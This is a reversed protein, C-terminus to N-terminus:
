SKVDFWQPLVRVRRLLFRDTLLVVLLSAGFLPLFIGLAAVAIALLPTARFPMKARPAGLRSNGRPRRRWWMLPGTVCLFLIGVCMLASAVMNFVGLHRGEHLAIGHAVTKALATYQEYGYASVVQGGYRDIHLTQEETPRSFAYAIVSFM